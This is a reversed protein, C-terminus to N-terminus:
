ITTVKFLKKDNIRQLNYQNNDKHLNNNINM